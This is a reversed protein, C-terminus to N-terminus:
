TGARGEEGSINVTIGAGSGIGQIFDGANLVQNGTWHVITNAPISVTPFLMNTTDASSGTPVLHLACTLTGTTTNAVCVDMVEAKMGTPVTYVLTGGGTTIAGRGLKKMGM